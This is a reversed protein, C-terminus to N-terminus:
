FKINKNLREQLMDNDTKLTILKLVKDKGYENVLDKILGQIFSISVGKIQTPFYIENEEDLKLRGKVQKLYVEQGYPNGAIHSLSKDFILNIRNM